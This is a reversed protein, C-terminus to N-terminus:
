PATPRKLLPHPYVVITDGLDYELLLGQSAFRIRRPLSVETGSSGAAELLATEDGDRLLRRLSEHHDLAASFLDEEINPINRGSLAAYGSADQLLQLFTRPIGGCLDAAAEFLPQLGAESASTEIGLRREAVEFLFRRAEKRLDGPGERTPLARIFFLRTESLLEHAEPGTVLSLPIVLAIDAEDNVELVARVARRAAEFPAKEVGDLLLAVRGQHSLRTVERITAILVDRWSPPLARRGPASAPIFDQPLVKAHVLTTTLEESLTLHLDAIALYALRGAIFRHVGEETAHRVDLLRDLPILCAVLHDQLGGTAAALETSKGAGVPGAVSVPGLGTKLLAALREGAGSPRSVYLPDSPKLSRHPALKKWDFAKM